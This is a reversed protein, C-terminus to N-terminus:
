GASVRLNEFRATTPGQYDGFFGTEASWYVNALADLVNGVLMGGKIPTRRGNQVLVGFRIESAFEGTIEDPNFWSFQEIEVYAGGLLDSTPTHGAPLELDGFAGTAPVALYDAYRKPAWYHALRGEEILLLRQAPLGDEDFSAAHLGYPLCRTAWATFPEGKMEGRLVPKGPEWNTAKGFKAEASSLFKLVGGNLFGALTEGRLVVPGTYDPSASADLLDVARQASRAVAHKLDLDAARRRSIESFSETERSEKEGKFVFELDAQTVVQTCDVGLSNRFHIHEEQTFGEAATLRLGPQAAAGLRIEALAEELVEGPNAQIRPDALPVQPIEAPGPFAYPPNHVKGAILAAFSVARSIDEGPLLTVQGDGCTRSGGEGTCAQVHIIYREESVARAAEVNQPVAYIQAGRSLIQRLSWAQLGSQNQLNRIIEDFM